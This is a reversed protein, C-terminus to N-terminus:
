LHEEYVVHTAVVAAEAERTLAQTRTRYVEAKESHERLLKDGDM